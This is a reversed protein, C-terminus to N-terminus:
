VKKSKYVEYILDRKSVIGVLRDDKVVCVRNVRHKLMLDAVDHLNAESSITVPHSIMIGKADGSLSRIAAEHTHRTRPSRDFMLIELFIDQDILGVLKEENDIVPYSNYHYKEFLDFLKEISDDEHVTVVDKAMIDKVNVNSLDDTM